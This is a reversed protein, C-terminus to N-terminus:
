RGYDMISQTVNDPPGADGHGRMDLTLQYLALLEYSYRSQQGYKDIWLKSGAHYEKHAQESLPLCFWHGILVKNHKFTAGKCHHVQVGHDGTVSCPQEKLWAQFDKEAKNPGRTNKSSKRQM